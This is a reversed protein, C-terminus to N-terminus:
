SDSEMNSIYKPFAKPNLRYRKAIFHISDNGIIERSGLAVEKIQDRSYLSELNILNQLDHMNRSLVREIIFKRDKKVSLRDMDVDWFISKRFVKKLHGSKASEPNM